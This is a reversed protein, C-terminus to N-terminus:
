YRVVGGFYFGRLDFDGTDTDVVYGVNFSRYGLQAGVNNTFNVTGYFDVDVYHARADEILNSPLKFGTIEGTISINPVVYVRFIGGISPIPAQAQAFETVFPSSLTATVDTQKFDLVLGGFGRDRSIFDFEYGFRYAKWDLVSSVPIGVNYAQGNFIIRRTVVTDQEYKIPIYQFRLKHRRGPRVTVHLEGLRKDKLGLDEKFDIRTGAIGLSESAISMEATPNWFGAQLEVWYSEGTAPNSVRRPTFQAQAPAAVGWLLVAAVAAYLRVAGRESMPRTKEPFQQPATPTRVQRLIARPLLALQQAPRM